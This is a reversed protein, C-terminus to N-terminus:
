TDGSSTDSIGSHWNNVFTVRKRNHANWVTIGNTNTDFYHCPMTSLSISLILFYQICSTIQIRSIFVASIVAYWLSTFIVVDFTRVDAGDLNMWPLHLVDCKEREKDSFYRYEEIGKVIEKYSWVWNLVRSVTLCRGAYGSLTVFRHSSWQTSSYLPHTKELAICASFFM